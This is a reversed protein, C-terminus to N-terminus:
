NWYGQDLAASTNNMFKETITLLNSRVADGVPTAILMLMAVIVLTLIAVGYQELLANMTQYVDGKAFKKPKM